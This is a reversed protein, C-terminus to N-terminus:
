SNDRNRFSEPDADDNKLEINRTARFVEESIKRNTALLDAIVGISIVLFGLNMLLTALLLSQIHGSRSSHFHFFVYRLGILFGAGFLTIGPPTLFRLPAYRATTRILVAASRAIYGPISKILRSKRIPPRPEIRIHAVPLGMSHIQVATEITYTSAGSSHLGAAAKRSIARFGSTVDRCKAGSVLNVARNGCYQLLRKFRPFHPVRLVGRDGIVM